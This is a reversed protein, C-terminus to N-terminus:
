QGGKIQVTGAPQGDFCLRDIKLLYKLQLKWSAGGSTCEAVHSLCHTLAEGGDPRARVADELHEDRPSEERPRDGQAVWEDEIDAVQRGEGPIVDAGPNESAWREVRSEVLEEGAADIGIDVVGGVAMRVRLDRLAPRGQVFHEGVTIADPGRHQFAHIRYALPRGRM